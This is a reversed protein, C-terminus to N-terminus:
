ESALHEVPVFSGAQPNLTSPSTASVVSNAAGSAADIPRGIASTPPSLQRPASRIARHQTAQRRKERLQYAAEAEAKTLNPNIYVRERITSNASRRLLRASALLDRVQEVDHLIVLLPKPKGEPPVHKGLRTTRIVDPRLDLEDRCLSSFLESDPKDGNPELGTVILSTERRKKTSQDMYVAAVVSQHFNKMPNRPRKRRVVESWSPLANPLNPSETGETTLDEISSPSITRQQRVANNDGEFKDGELNLTLDDEDIGLFSLISNLQKQLKLIVCQQHQILLQMQRFETIGALSPAPDVSYTAHRAEFDADPNADSLSHAGIEASTTLACDYTTAIATVNTTTGSSLDDAHFVADLGQVVLKGGASPPLTPKAKSQNSATSSAKRMNIHNNRSVPESETSPNPQIPPFRVADCKPCLLLDGQTLKVSRNNANHPCPGDPLGECRPM